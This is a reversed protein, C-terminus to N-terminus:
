SMKLYISLLEVPLDVDRRARKIQRQRVCCQFGGETRYTKIEISLPQEKNSYINSITMISIDANM